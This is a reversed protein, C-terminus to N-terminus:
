GKITLLEVTFILKSNPPIVKGAGKSGYGCDPDILLKAKEGITMTAVGEDWGRIVQGVGIIFEFPKGRKKSSDFMTGDTLTGEYHMVCKQGKKPFTKGDGAAILEKTWPM